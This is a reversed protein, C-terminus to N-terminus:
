KNKIERLKNLDQKTNVKSDIKQSPMNSKTAKTKTFTKTEEIPIETRDIKKGKEIEDRPDLAFFHKEGSNSPNFADNVCRKFTRFGYFVLYVALMGLLVWSEIKYSEQLINLINSLM